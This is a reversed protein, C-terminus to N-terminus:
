GEEAKKDAAIKNIKRASRIALKFELRESLRSGKYFAKQFSPRSQVSELWRQVSPLNRWHYSLGLDNMRDILPAMSVDVLSFTDGLLWQHKSLASDMRDVTAQLQGVSNAIEMESFGAGSNMKRYFGKRLTRESASQDFSKKNGIIRLTPLFVQEFSPTRIAVTPVEEMYRLWERMKAKGIASDPSLCNGQFVDDLYELICSSDVITDGDHLLTPVVGNPNIELYEPKLQEKKRFSMARSQYDLGKEELAFRVKQSCTSYDAHYLTITM